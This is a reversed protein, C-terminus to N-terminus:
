STAAHSLSNTHVQLKTKIYRHLTSQQGFKTYKHIQNEVKTRMTISYNRTSTIYASKIYCHASKTLQNSLCMSALHAFKYSYYIQQLYTIKLDRMDQFKHGLPHCINGKFYLQETNIKTPQSTYKTPCFRFKHQQLKYRLNLGITSLEYSILGPLELNLHFKQIQMLFYNEPCKV